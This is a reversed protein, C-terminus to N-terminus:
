SAGGYTRGVLRYKKLTHFYVHVVMCSLLVYAGFVHVADVVRLGGVAEIAPMMTRVDFLLVGTLMQVPVFVLMTTLFFTRELPDFSPYRGHTKPYGEGVFILYGYYHLMQASDRFFDGPSVFFRSHFERKWLHYGLWFLYDVIVVAGCLNHLNVANLFTAFVPLVDPLRLQLGTLLLFIVCMGHLWHWVQVPVPLQEIEASPPRTRLKRTVFMLLAHFCVGVLALVVIFAGALDLWKFGIRKVAQLVEDLDEKRIKSEGLMYFDVLFPLQGSRGLVERELDLTRVGGHKEPIMLLLKSYFAADRSHCLTCDRAREGKSSFDHSPKLVLIRVELGATPIGHDQVTKMFTNLEAASVRGKGDRDLTEALGGKGPEIFPELQSYDLSTEKSGAPRDVMFFLMGVQANLAHCSTCELYSFHLDKQPLWQHTHQVAHCKLCINKREEGSMGRFSTCYHPNHCSYCINQSVRAHLSKSYEEDVKAHCGGCTPKLGLRHPVRKERSTVTMGGHCSTCGMGKMGHASKAFRTKDIFRSQGRHSRLDERGHCTMCDEDASVAAQCPLAAMMLGVVLWLGLGWLPAAKKKM